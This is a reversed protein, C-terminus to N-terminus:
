IKRFLIMLVFLRILGWVYSYFFCDCTYKSVQKYYGLTQNNCIKNIKFFDFKTLLIIVNLLKMQKKCIKLFKLIQFLFFFDLFQKLNSATKQLKELLFFKKVIM